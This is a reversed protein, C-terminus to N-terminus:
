YLNLLVSVEDACINKVLQSILPRLWPEDWTLRINVTLNQIIILLKNIKTKKDVVQELLKVLPPLYRFKESLIKGRSINMVNELVATVSWFITSQADMTSLLEYINIYFLCVDKQLPDFFKPDM